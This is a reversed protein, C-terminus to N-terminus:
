GGQKVFRLYYNIKLFDLEEALRFGEAEIERIVTDRGARVHQMVWPSSVGEERRFDIVVLAGGPRLAQHISRLMSQPYEFHHYTDCTFVLDVSAPPLRVDQQTNVVGVVNDLGSEGARHLIGDVFSEAIDVAYVRGESGVEPAFLLTFLGTGAGVDAVDMGPRLDVAALIEHRKDYVERGPREFRAQWLEFDPDQYALNVDPRVSQEQAEVALGTACLVALLVALLGHAGPSLSKPM